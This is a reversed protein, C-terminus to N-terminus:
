RKVPPMLVRDVIHAVGNSAKVDATMVMAEEVTIYAGARSLALSTGQVSKVPGNKVDSALIQGPVVHYTLVSKLRTPDKALEDMTKAPVAKFADNNPAFVTFPGPGKFTDNLGAKVVLGHLTSLSPTRALTDALTVTAPQTACGAVLAAVAALSLLRRNLM